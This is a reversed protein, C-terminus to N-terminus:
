LTATVIAPALPNTAGLVPSLSHPAVTHAHATVTKNEELSMKENISEFSVM